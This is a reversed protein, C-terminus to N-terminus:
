TNSSYVFVGSITFFHIGGRCSEALDFLLYVPSFGEAISHYVVFGCLGSRTLLRCYVLQKKSKTVCVCTWAATSYARVCCCSACVLVAVRPQRLGCLLLHCPFVVVSYLNQPPIKPTKKKPQGGLKPILKSDRCQSEKKRDKKRQKKNEGHHSPKSTYVVYECSSSPAELSCASQLHLHKSKCRGRSAHTSRGSPSGQISAYTYTHVLSENEEDM